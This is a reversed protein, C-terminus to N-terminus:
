DVPTEPPEQEKKGDAELYEEEAQAKHALRLEERTNDLRRSLAEVQELAQDNQTGLVMAQAKELRQALQDVQAMDDEEIKDKTLKGELEKLQDTVGRLTRQVQSLLGAILGKAIDGYGAEQLPKVGRPDIFQGLARAAADRNEGEVEQKQDLREILPEVAVPDGLASLAEIARWRIGPDADDLTALIPGVARHDGFRGLAEISRWRVERESDELLQIMPEVCGPGMMSSLGEVARWRIEAVHDSLMGLLPEQAGPEHLQALRKVAQTRIWDDADKLSRILGAPVRPDEMVTLAALVHRRLDLAPEDIMQLLPEIALQSRGQGLAKVAALRVGHEPDELARILGEVAELSGIKALSGVIAERIAADPHDLTQILGDVAQNSHLKMLAAIAELALEVEGRKVIELLPGVGDLEGTDGLSRVAFVQVDPAPHHLLKILTAGSGKGWLKSLGNLATITASRLETSPPAQDLNQELIDFLPEVAPAKKTRALLPVAQSPTFLQPDTLAAILPEVTRHEDLDILAEAVFDRVGASDHRLGALLEDLPAASILTDITAEVAQDVDQPRELFQILPILAKPDGLRQLAPLAQSRTKPSKHLLAALLGDIDRNAELQRIKPGFLAM